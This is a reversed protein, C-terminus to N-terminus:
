QREGFVGGDHSVDGAWDEPYVGLKVMRHFSSYPWDRVRAVLRHKVPNIHIYDVHRTFDTEDRITHEWYRRQWIGREGKAARSQSIREGTELNRSFASKILRWRTSFDADGEPLTWITHLHDPLVVMAAITFPHHRRTERFANRLEDIHETLLRLRREALNVTFFFSGGAIFNRRYDTM